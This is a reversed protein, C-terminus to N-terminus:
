LPIFLGKLSGLMLKRKNHNSYLLLNACCWYPLVLKVVTRGWLLNRLMERWSRQQLHAGATIFVGNGLKWKLGYSLCFLCVKHQVERQLSNRGCLKPKRRVSSGPLSYGLSKPTFAENEEKHFVKRSLYCLLAFLSLLCCLLFLDWQTLWLRNM